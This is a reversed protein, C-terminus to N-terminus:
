GALQRHELLLWSGCARAYTSRCRLSRDKGIVRYTLVALGDKRAIQRDDMRPASRLWFQQERTWLAQEPTM